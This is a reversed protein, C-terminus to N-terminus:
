NTDTEVEARERAQEAKDKVAQKAARKKAEEAKKKGVGNHKRADATKVAKKMSVKKVKKDAPKAKATKKAAPKAKATKKTKAASKAKATTKKKGGGEKAEKERKKRAAEKEEDTMPKRGRKTGFSKTAEKGDKVWRKGTTTLKYTGYASKEAWGDRILRRISNRVMSQAMADVEEEGWGKEYTEKCRETADKAFKKKMEAINHVEGDSLVDYCKQEKSNFGKIKM